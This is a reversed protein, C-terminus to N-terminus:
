EYNSLDWCRHGGRDLDSYARGLAGHENAVLAGRLITGVVLAGVQLWPM